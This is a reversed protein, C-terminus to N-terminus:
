TNILADLTFLVNFNLMLNNGKKRKKTQKNTKREKKREKRYGKWVKIENGKGEKL